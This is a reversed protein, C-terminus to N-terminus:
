RLMKHQCFLNRIGFRVKMELSHARVYSSKLDQDFGGLLYAKRGQVICADIIIMVYGHKLQTDDMSIFLHQRREWDSFKCGKGVKVLKVTYEPWIVKLSRM